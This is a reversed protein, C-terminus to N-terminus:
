YSEIYQDKEYADEERKEYYGAENMKKKIEPDNFLKKEIRSLQVYEENDIYKMRDPKVAKLIIKVDKQTVNNEELLENKQLIELLKGWYEAPKNQIDIISEKTDESQKEKRAIEKLDEYETKSILIDRIEEMLELDTNKMINWCKEKKAWENIDIVERDESTLTDFAYKSLVEMQRVLIEPIEQNKWILEYDLVYKPYEEELLYSLLSIAYTRCKPKYGGTQAWEQNAILSEVDNYLIIKSVLEKFYLDNFDDSNQEWKESVWESFKKVNTDGGKSVFYPLQYWSNHVAALKGKTIHQKKPHTLLFKKKDVTKLRVQANSYQGRAREYFWKTDYQGGEKAPAHIRRSMKELTVHYPHNSFFDAETIKNQSNSYRSIKPIIEEAINQKVVTLKMQVYINNLSYKNRFRATSLSATTQGGNVIQLDALYTIYGDEIQIDTATAAIGNNYAFFREPEKNITQIIGRNVARTTSLYSRVNGELLRSGFKDYIDALTKGPIVCLFCQYDDSIVDSAKIYPIGIGNYENFDIELPEYQNRITYIRNIDYISYEIPIGNMEKESDSSKYEYVRDSIAMDTMFMLKYKRTEPELRRLTKVLDNAPTSEEIEHYLKGNLAEDLFNKLKKFITDIETKTLTKLEEDDTYKAIILCMTQDIENYSSGDVRIRKRKTEGEYFSSEFTSLIGDEILDETIDILFLETTPTSSNVNTGVRIEEILDKHFETIEM